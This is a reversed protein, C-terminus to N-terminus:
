ESFINFYVLDLQATEMVDRLDQRDTETLKIIANVGPKKNFEFFRM